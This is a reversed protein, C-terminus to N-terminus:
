HRGFHPDYTTPGLSQTDRRKISRLQALRTQAKRSQCSSKNSSQDYEAVLPIEGMVLCRSSWPTSILRSIAIFWSKRMKSSLSLMHSGTDESLVLGLPIMQTVNWINIDIGGDVVLRVVDLHGNQSVIHLLTWGNDRM